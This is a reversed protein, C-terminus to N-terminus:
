AEDGSIADRREIPRVSGPVISGDFDEILTRVFPDADIAAQAQAQREGRERASAAAATDGGVRGVEVDLRVPAGFHAGLAARVRKVTGPEALPRIPVRVRFRLGDAEILESQQMFQQVFGGVQLRAALGPWDGDFQVVATRPEDVRVTPAEDGRATPARDGSAQAGGATPAQDGSAGPSRGGSGTRAAAGRPPVGQTRGTPPPAAAAVAGRDPGFALLRLLVMTFGAHADPALPLDRAGHIVIQYWVQLDEPAIAAALRQLTEPDDADAIAGVQALAIRQLLAALDALTREFPANGALMEDALGVLRAGDGAVLADLIHVLWAADVVGLMERVAPERVEGGGYAIAQDLLSLADRMSGAAARGIRDLAGRDFAVSEASLVVALHAAVAAPSMNKLNFQLCRSLVTVPVRQPDTTALVFVVHPPPEELTKLMANFAHTSLMHVEDIVYVKYRGATPAYVANELLQTMEDVGRNSAADLEICDVFRGADIGTCAACRGCPRASVGTECNLAKALIRAITTKGVGRTGTFLYAHHLRQTQLAHSLARVVHDQGVLSEFDRPRWKRALVQHTM